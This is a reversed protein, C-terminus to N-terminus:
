EGLSQMYELYDPNATEAVVLWDDPVPSDHEVLMLEGTLANQLVDWTM